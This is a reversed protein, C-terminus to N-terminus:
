GGRRRVGDAAIRAAAKHLLRVAVAAGRTAGFSPRCCTSIGSAGSRTPEEHTVEGGCGGTCYREWCRKGCGVMGAEDVASSSRRGSERARLRENM